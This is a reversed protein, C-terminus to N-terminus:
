GRVRGRFVGVVGAGLSILGASALYPIYPYLVYVVEEIWGQLM